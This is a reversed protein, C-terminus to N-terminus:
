YANPNQIEMRKVYKRGTLTDYLEIDLVEWIEKLVMSISKHTTLELAKSICLSIFVILVHVRIHDDKRLFIPRAELDSKAMRFAKEVHWLDHYRSIINRASDADDAVDMNTYYGKLGDLLTDKQILEENLECKTKSVVKVFRPLRTNLKGPQNIKAEAIGLSKRRDGADKIARSKSYACILTGYKTKGIFFVDENKNIHNSIRELEKTDFNGIRAGVIYKLGAQELLYMNKFSLMGADAVVTLTSVAHRNKFDQIIPIFTNGEFTNGKFVEYSVPFGDKNVILGVLIQPQNPKNDKSFGPARLGDSKFTEFYLTTVDYFILSFDFALNNKAYTTAFRSADDKLPLFDKLHKYLIDKSYKTGFYRNLLELSKLKSAPEIIRIISLDKLLPQVLRAFGLKQYYKSLVEYAYSHLVRTFRIKDLYFLHDTENGDENNPELQPFLPKQSDFEVIYRRAVKILNAIGGDTSASGIHKIVRTKGHKREVVQVATKGSGTETQRVKFM